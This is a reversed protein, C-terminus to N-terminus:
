INKKFFFFGVFYRNNIFGFLVRLVYRVNRQLDFHGLLPEADALNWNKGRM